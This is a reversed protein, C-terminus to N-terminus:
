SATAAGATRTIKRSNTEVELSRTLVPDEESPFRELCMRLKEALDCVYPEAIISGHHGPVEILELRGDVFRDWGLTPDPHIGLPQIAARFLTVNGHYVAPSYIKGAKQILDEIQLYNTPISNAGKIVTYARRVAKMYGDRLKRRYKLKIKGLKGRVHGPIERLSFAMLSDKQHQIRRILRYARSRVVTTSPLLKPYDPTGTDLLALLAVTHGHRQLQQAMEFAVLGGFSSGGLYYPGNAQVTRIEKIYAAAMEEVTAHGIQRGALRRAQLGYFPQDEGLYKALDRYFLVNGGKAHICFLPARSGKPQIPVLSSEPAAWGEKRIISALKEITGAEFLTALPINKGFADEIEAFMRIAKLSHGGLEFFNDEISIPQIGLIEEWISVLRAELDDRHPIFKNKIGLNKFSPAPLAKRDIKGNPTLPIDALEIFASPIMFDPLHHAVHERLDAVSTGQGQNKKFYAALRKEGPQDERAVVACQAVAPHTGLVAEIEGLELRFGRIKVQNDIRGLYEIEGSNLFRALDGTKYLRDESSTSFPNKIFREATLEPQNLYGRALGDGGLYLEGPIGVPVPQLNSDLIYAQTNSIPRGITAKETDRRTFTSYTTDETPGYLDYVDRVTRTEYIQRVLSTSLPEGALNVTRVSPPIGNTRLLEAMASPVTNILTVDRVAPASSLHLINEVLIVTGGCSLPAFIEFVSLDFCASTSALTGKLQEVSFVSTAWALFAVTSRHEIAVGKPKGTSGSTYIVYALDSPRVASIPEVDSAAEIFSRAKDLCVVTTDPGDLGTASTSDTLLISARSDTLIYNLRDKPYGPDLPVYAGGAKLIGLIGVIMEISREVCIAALVGPGVGLTQLYNAVQNARRNLERYSLRQEGNILADGDPSRGVQAEFFHHICRDPLIEIRDRNWVSLVQNLEDERLLPLYGLPRDPDASIGKLFTLFHDLLRIIADADFKNSDYIWRAGCGASSLILTLDSGALCLNDLSDSEIVSIPLRFSSGHGPATSLVPYRTIVDTIVPHQKVWQVEKKISAALAQFRGLKDIDIHIPVQEAFLKFRGAFPNRTDRWSFGIDFHRNDILRSLFACFAAILIDNGNRDESSRKSLASAGAPLVFQVSRYRPSTSLNGPLPITAPELTSLRRVWSQEIKSAREVDKGIQEAAERGLAPLTYGVGLDFEDALDSISVPEGDLRFLDTIIVDDSITAIRLLGKGIDQVTGPRAETKAPCISITPVIFFQDEIQIKATGLPNPYPGLDLARVLNSIERSSTNWSIVGGNAPRQFRGFFTRRELDQAQRTSTGASLDNTLELFADLAAEYCKANLTFATDTKSVEICRQQLIDGGDILDNVVHWSIGHVSEGNMLAWSTAHMGAYRPLLADHYNIAMKRPLSLLDKSLITENVISFLYDFPLEIRM